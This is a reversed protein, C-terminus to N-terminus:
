SDSYSSSIHHHKESRQLAHVLGHVLPENKGATKLQTNHFARPGMKSSPIQSSHIMAENEYPDRATFTMMLILNVAKCRKVVYILLWSFAVTRTIYDDKNRWFNKDDLAHLLGYLM